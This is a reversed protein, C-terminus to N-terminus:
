FQSTQQPAHQQQATLAPTTPLKKTFTSTYDGISLLANPNVKMRESLDEILRIAQTRMSTQTDTLTRMQVGLIGLIGLAAVVIAILSELLTIGLQKKARITHTLRM